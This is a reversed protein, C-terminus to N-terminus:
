RADDKHRGRCESLAAELEVIKARLEDITALLSPSRRHACESYVGDAILRACAIGVAKHQEGIKAAIANHSMSPNGILAQKINEPIPRHIEGRRVRSAIGENCGVRRAAEAVTLGPNEVFLVAVKAAAGTKTGHFTASTIKKDALLPARVWGVLTESCDLLRGIEADPRQCNELLALEIKRRLRQSKTGQLGKRDLNEYDKRSWPRGVNSSMAIGIAQYDDAVKIVQRPWEIGLQREVEIRHRGSLIRGKDDLLIPSHDQLGYDDISKKIVEINKQDIPRLGPEGPKLSAALAAIDGKAKSDEDRFARCEASRVPYSVVGPIVSVTAGEEMKPGRRWRDVGNADKIALGRYEILDLLGHIFGTFGGHGKWMRDIRARESTVRATEAAAALTISGEDHIHNLIPILFPQPADGGGMEGNGSLRAEIEKAQKRTIM